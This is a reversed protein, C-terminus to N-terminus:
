KHGGIIGYKPLIEHAVGGLQPEPKPIYLTTLDATGVGTADVSQPYTTGGTIVNTTLDVTGIGSADLTRAHTALKTMDATGVGSADLTRVYDMRTQLDATGAATANKGAFVSKSRDAVGFGTVNSIKLVKLGLDATGTAAANADQGLVGTSALDATGIANAEVSVFFTQLPNATLDATGTASAQLDKNFVFQDNYDATGTANADFSRFYEKLWTLDASGVAGATRNVLKTASTVLDAVGSATAELVKGPTKVFDAAGSGAAEVAQLLLKGISSDVTGTATAQANHSLTLLKALDAAGTAAADLIKGFTSSRTLDATGTASADLTQTVMKTVDATGVGTADVAQDSLKGKQLDATGVGSADRTTYMGKSIDVTGVGIADKTFGINLALDSTGAGSAQQNQARTYVRTLDATGTGSANVSKQTTSGTSFSIEDYKLTGNDDFIFSLVDTQLFAAGHVFNGTVADRHETANTWSSGDNTSVNYYIDQDAGETGGGAYVMYFDTGDSALAGSAVASASQDPNSYADLNGFAVSATGDVSGSTATVALSTPRDNSSARLGFLVEATTGSTERIAPQYMARNPFSNSDWSSNIYATGFTNSSTFTRWRGEQWSPTETISTRDDHQWAIHVYETDIPDAIVVPVGEHNTATSADISVPGTFSPTAGDTGHWLDARQYNKGMVADTLGCAVIVIEDDTKTRVAIDCWALDTSPFQKGSLDAVLHDTVDWTDASMDFRHYRLFYNAMVAIHIYTGDNVSSITAPGQAGESVSVPNNATDQATWTGSDPTTSKYVDLDLQGSVTGNDAVAYYATARKHPPNSGQHGGGTGGTIDQPLAM